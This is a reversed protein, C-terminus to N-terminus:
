NSRGFHVILLLHDLDALATRLSLFSLLSVPSLVENIPLPLVVSLHLNPDVIEIGRLVEDREDEEDQESGDWKLRKGTNNDDLEDVQSGVSDLEERERKLNAALLLKDKKNNKGKGRGVKKGDKGRMPGQSGGGAAGIPENSETDVGGNLNNSNSGSAVGNTANSSRSNSTTTSSTSHSTPRPVIDILFDFM